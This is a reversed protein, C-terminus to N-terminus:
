ILFEETIKKINMIATISHAVFSSKHRQCATIVQRWFICCVISHYYNNARINIVTVKAKINIVTVKARTNIM